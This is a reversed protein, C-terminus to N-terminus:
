LGFSALAVNQELWKKVKEVRARNAEPGVPEVAGLLRGPDSSTAGRRVDDVLKGIDLDVYAMGLARYAQNRIWRYEELSLGSANLADIQTRKAELWTAALDRYASLIAPADVITANDKQALTRYKAEFAAMREGLRQRVASQVKVLKEIQGDTLEESAPAVFPDRNRVSRELDPVQGLEAFQTLASSVKRYAYYSVAAATMGILLLVVGCGIALKKM